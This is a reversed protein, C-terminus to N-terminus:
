IKWKINCGASPYQPEPAGKGSLLAELAGRLDAGTLPKGSNPRSDDLRGRYFLLDDADFLYIDPTCAADYAKAVSQSEDYLYPFPYRLVKAVIRMKDPADDPYKEVDNSSIAVFGIGKSSYDNAIKVLEENVHIVYPCHNCLFLVITGAYGKIFLYSRNEGSVTDQLNFDPAISGLPLMNSEKLAMGLNLKFTCIYYYFSFKARSIVAYIHIL